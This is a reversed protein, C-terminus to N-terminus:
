RAERLAERALNMAAQRFQLFVTSEKDADALRHYERGECTFFYVKGTGDLPRLAVYEAGEQMITGLYEWDNMRIIDTM